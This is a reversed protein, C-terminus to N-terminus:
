AETNLTRRYQLEQGRFGDASGRPQPGQWSGLVNDVLRDPLVLLDYPYGATDSFGALM